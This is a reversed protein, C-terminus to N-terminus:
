RWVILSTDGLWGTAGGNGGTVAAGIRVTHAGARPVVYVANVASMNWNYGAGSTSSCFADSSTSNTPRIAVGDVYIDINVWTDDIDDVIGCEATYSVVVKQNPATTNFTISLAGADNLPVSPNSGEAYTFNTNRTHTALLAAQAGYAVLLGTGIVAAKALLKM